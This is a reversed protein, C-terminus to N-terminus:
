GNWAFVAFATWDTDSFGYLSGIRKDIFVGVIQDPEYFNCVASTQAEFIILIEATRLLQVVVGQPTLDGSNFYVPPFTSARQMAHGILIGVAFPIYCLSQIGICPLEGCYAETLQLIYINFRKSHGTYLLQESLHTMVIAALFSWM